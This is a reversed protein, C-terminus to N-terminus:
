LSAYVPPPICIYNHKMAQFIGISASPVKLENEHGSGPMLACAPRGCGTGVFNQRHPNRMPHNFEISRDPPIAPRIERVDGKTVVTRCQFLNFNGVIDRVGTYSSGTRVDHAPKPGIRPGNEVIWRFPAPKGGDHGVLRKQIQYALCRQCCGRISEGSENIADKKGITAFRVIAGGCQAREPDIQFGAPGIRQNHFPHGGSLLLYIDIACYIGVKGLRHSFQNRFPYPFLNPGPTPQFCKLTKRLALGLQVDVGTLNSPSRM